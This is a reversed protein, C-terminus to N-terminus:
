LEPGDEVELEIKPWTRAIKQLKVPDSIYTETFGCNICVYYDLAVLSPVNTTTPTLPITNVNNPGAKSRTSMLTNTFIDRSGCKPCVGSKM